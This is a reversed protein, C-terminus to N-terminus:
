LLRGYELRYVFDPKATDTAQKFATLFDGDNTSPPITQINFTAIDKGMGQMLFEKARQTANTVAIALVNKYPTKLEFDLWKKGTLICRLM